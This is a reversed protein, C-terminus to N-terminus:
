VIYTLCDLSQLMHEQTDTRAHKTSRHFSAFFIVEVGEEGYRDYLHPSCRKPTHWPIYKIQKLKQGGCVKSACSISWSCSKKKVEQVEATRVRRGQKMEVPVPLLSKKWLHLIKNASLGERRERTFFSEQRPLSTSQPLVHLTTGYPEKWQRISELQVWKLRALAEFFIFLMVKERDQPLFKWHKYSPTQSIASCTNVHQIYKHRVVLRTNSIPARRVITLWRRQRRRESFPLKSKIKKTSVSFCIEQTISIIM